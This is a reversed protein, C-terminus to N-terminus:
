WAINNLILIYDDITVEGDGNVDALNAVAWNDDGEEAMYYLLALTLDLQDVAGDRNVDYKDFVPAQESIVTQVTDNALEAAIFVANSDEDYGSLEIKTIIVDTTGAIGKSAFIMEFIDLASDTTVGGALNVLTARGIWKEGDQTWVVEGLMNFGNMGAFRKGSFYADEVEFWVTAAALKEMNNVALAYAADSGQEIASDGSLTAYPGEPVPAESGSYDRTPTHGPFAQTAFDSDASIYYVPTEPTGAFANAGISTPFVDGLYYNNLSLCTQFVGDGITEVSPIKVTELNKCNWFTRNGTTKLAPMDVEKLTSVGYMSAYDDACYFVNNGLTEVKPLSITELATCHTFAFEGVSVVNPFDVEKLGICENFVHTGIREVTPLSISVLARNNTFAGNGISVLNPMDISALKLCSHFMNASIETINLSIQELSNCSQFHGSGTLTILKPLNVTKLAYASGFVGSGMETLTPLDIEKLKNANFFVSNGLKEVVPLDVAELNKCFSFTSNGITIASPLSVTLLAECGFLSEVGTSTVEPLDIQTLLKCYLFAQNGIHETGSPASFSELATYGSIAGKMFGEPIENTGSLEAGSMDLIKLAVRLKTNNSKIWALDAAVVTGNVTLGTIEDLPTEGRAADILAGLNGSGDPTVTFAAADLPVAMAPVTLTLVLALVLFLSVPKRTLGTKM